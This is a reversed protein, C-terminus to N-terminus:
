FGLAALKRVIGEYLPRVDVAYGLLWAHPAKWGIQNFHDCEWVEFSEGWRASAVSVLGDNDGEVPRLVDHGLRLVALMKRREQRGGVSFYRVGPADPTATSWARCADTRLDRFAGHPIGRRALWRELRRGLGGEAVRDAVASGRHPTGITTLTLVRREMGLHAIMHRADLGGMSHAILHVPEAGCLRTIERKLSEAREPVSATPEVRPLCVSNGARALRQPIGRFYFIRRRGIRATVFGLLGHALVIPAKLAGSRM